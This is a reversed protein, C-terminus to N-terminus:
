KLYKARNSSTNPYKVIEKYFAAKKIANDFTAETIEKENKNEIHYRDGNILGTVKFFQKNIKNDDTYTYDYIVSYSVIALRMKNDLTLYYYTDEGSNSFRRELRKSVDIFAGSRDYSSGCMKVSGNIYTYVKIYKIYKDTIILEKTGDNNIDMTFFEESNGGIFLLSNIDEDKLHLNNELFKNYASIYKSSIKIRMESTTYNKKSSKINIIKGESKVPVNTIKFKGDKSAIATKGIQKGGDYAKVTAGAITTGSITTDGYYINNVKISTKPAAKVATSVTKSEYNKKSVVVKITTGKKQNAISIKYNGSKDSTASKLKKSGVYVTVTANPITKGSINKSYTYFNNVKLTSIIDKQIKINIQKSYLNTKSAKIQILEGVSKKSVGTIKFNGSGNAIATKGIKSKGYYAKISAGPTATGTITTDSYRKKNVSLSVTKSKIVKVKKECNNYNIKSAVVKIETGSSQKAINIKFNGNKDATTSGIKKSGVYAKVTANSITTGSISTGQSYVTNLNLKSININSNIKRELIYDDYILDSLLMEEVELENFYNINEGYSVDSFSSTLIIYFAMIVSLVKNKKM